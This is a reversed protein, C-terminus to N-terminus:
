VLMLQHNEVPTWTVALRRLHGSSKQTNQGFEDISNNLHKGIGELGTCVIGKTVTGLTGIVFPIVTVKMNWLKKNELM